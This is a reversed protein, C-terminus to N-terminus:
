TGRSGAATEDDLREPGHLQAAARRRNVDKGDLAAPL